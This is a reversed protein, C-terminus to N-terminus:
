QDEFEIMEADSWLEELRYFTRTEKFFIHVVTNFYDVLVWTANGMGEVHNPVQGTKKKVETLVHEAIAKVQVHSNAHCVIFYDTPSEDLKRMDFQIVDSGKKDQVCHVILGNFEETSIDSKVLNRELNM